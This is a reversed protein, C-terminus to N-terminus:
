SSLSHRFSHNRRNLSLANSSGFFSFVRLSSSSSSTSLRREQRDMKKLSVSSEGIVLMDSLSAANQKTQWNNPGRKDGNPLSSSLRRRDYELERIVHDLEVRVRAMTPRNAPDNDWCEQILRVLSRSPLSRRFSPRYRERAIRDIFKRKSKFSNYPRSLTVVEYLLIGFSYVDSKADSGEWIMTEPAMYRLSGAIALECDDIHRALGFDFMKVIGSDDFGVNAPKLDRYIINNKHLYMLADCVGIMSLEIRELISQASTVTSSFSSKTSRLRDLRASLTSELIEMIFFYGKDAQPDTSDNSGLVRIINKHDLTSLIAAETALNVSNPIFDNDINKLSEVRVCKLAYRPPVVVNPKRLARNVVRVSYVDSFAGSGLRECFDIDAWCLKGIESSTRTIVKDDLKSVDRFSQQSEDIAEWAKLSDSSSLRGISIYLQQIETM